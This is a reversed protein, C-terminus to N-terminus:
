SAPVARAAPGCVVAKGDAFVIAPTMSSLPRKGADIANRPTVSCASVTRREPSRRFFRGMENNLLFGAGGVAIGSGYSFNLTYTNSFSTATRQRHGFFHTTDESEFPPAVGPALDESRRVENMDIAAAIERGYAKGTLWAVPVEHFDPDGLHM